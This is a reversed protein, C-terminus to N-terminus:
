NNQIQPQQQISSLVINKNKVSRLRQRYIKLADNTSSINEQIGISMMSSNHSERATLASIDLNTLSM